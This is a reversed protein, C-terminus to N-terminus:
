SNLDDDHVFLGDGLIELKKEFNECNKIIKSHVDHFDFGLISFTKESFFDIPSLSCMM